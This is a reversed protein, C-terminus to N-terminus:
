GERRTFDKLSFDQVRKMEEEMERRWSDRRYGPPVEDPKLNVRCIKDYECGFKKCHDRNCPFLFPHPIEELTKVKQSIELITGLLEMEFIILESKGRIAFGPRQADVVRGRKYLVDILSSDVEWEPHAKQLAWIYSTVQDDMEVNKFTGPISWRTTKTEVPYIKKLERDRVVRDPRVTLHFRNDPGFPIDYEKELELIEWDKLDKERWQRDYYNLMLPGDELDTLYDEDREYEGKRSLLERYFVELASDIKMGSSYYAEIAQHAVGGFILSKGTFAYRLGQIYRLYFKRPCGRYTSYFHWGSPSERREEM